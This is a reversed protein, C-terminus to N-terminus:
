NKRNVNLRTPFARSTCLKRKSTEFSRERSNKLHQLYFHERLLSFHTQKQTQSVM